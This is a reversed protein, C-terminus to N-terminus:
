MLLHFHTAFYQRTHVFNYAVMRVNPLIDRNLRGITINYIGEVAWCFLATNSADIYIYLEFLYIYQIEVFLVM